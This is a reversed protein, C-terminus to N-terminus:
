GVDGLGELSPRGTGVRIVAEDDLRLNSIEQTDVAIRGRRDGIARNQRHSIDRVARRSRELIANIPVHAKRTDRGLM